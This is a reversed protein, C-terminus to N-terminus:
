SIRRDHESALINSTIHSPTNIRPLQKTKVDKNKAVYMGQVNTHAGATSQLVKIMREQEQNGRKATRKRGLVRSAAQRHITIKHQAFQRRVEALRTRTNLDSTRLNQTSRDRTKRTDLAINAM